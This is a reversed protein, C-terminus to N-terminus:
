SKEVWGLWGLPWCRCCAAMGAWGVGALRSGHMPRLQRQCETGGGHHLGRSGCRRTPLAHRRGISLGAPPRCCSVRQNSGRREPHAGSGGVAAHGQQRPRQAAGPRGHGQAHAPAPGARVCVAFHLCRSCVCAHPPHPTVSRQCCPLAVCAAAAAVPLHCAVCSSHWLAASGLSAHWLAASGLPATPM